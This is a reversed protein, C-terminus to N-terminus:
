AKHRYFLTITLCHFEKDSSQTVIKDVIEVASNEKLWKTINEGMNERDRALTTSFVKVGTFSIVAM